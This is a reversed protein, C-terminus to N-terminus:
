GPSFFWALRVVQIAQSFDMFLSIRGTLLQPLSFKKKSSHVYLESPDVGGVLYTLALCFSLNISSHQFSDTFGNDNRMIEHATKKKQVLQRNAVHTNPKLEGGNKYVHIYTYKYPHEGDGAVGKQNSLNSLHRVTKFKTQTFCHSGFYAPNFFGPSKWSCLM